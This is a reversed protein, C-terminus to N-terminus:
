TILRNIVLHQGFLLENYHIIKKKSLYRRKIPLSYKVDLVREREGEGERGRM